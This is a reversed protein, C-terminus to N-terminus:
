GVKTSPESYEVFEIKPEPFGNFRSAYVLSYAGTGSLNLIDGYQPEPLDTEFMTDLSDCSPGTLTVRKLKGKRSSQIPYTMGDIAEMLGSFIGCDTFVLTREDREAIGIISTQLIGASGSIFRGPEAIMDKLFFGEKKWNDIHTEVIEGIQNVNPIKRGLFIPFGGGINLIYPQLDYTKAQQIAQWSLNMATHWADLTESQSGVHFTIGSLPLKHKQLFEFIEPWFRQSLGFKQNLPWISGENPVHIRFIPEIQNKYPLFKELEGISDFSQITVGLSIAKEIGEKTKVPNSYVIQEPKIELGLLFELEYTSAVEFHSGQQALLRSIEQHPNAKIAYCIRFSPLASKLEQYNEAIRRKDIIIRPTNM